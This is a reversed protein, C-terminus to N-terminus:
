REKSKSNVKELLALIEAYDDDKGKISMNISLPKYNITVVNPSRGQEIRDKKLIHSIKFLLHSFVTVLIAGTLQEGLDLFFTALLSGRNVDIVIHEIEGRLILKYTENTIRTTLNRDLNCKIELNEGQTGPTYRKM